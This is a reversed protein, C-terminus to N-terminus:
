FFFRLVVLKQPVSYYVMFYTCHAEGSAPIDYGQYLFFVYTSHVSYKRRCVGAVAEERWGCVVFLLAM